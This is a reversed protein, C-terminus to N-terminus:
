AAGNRMAYLAIAAATAVNLSDWGPAMAIAAPKLRGLLSAPLGQGEAGVVLATRPHRPTEKLTHAAGPSLAIAAIDHDALGSLLADENESRTFPVSLVAGVSVRLAKRYLPDCSGKDLVVLDVGFAAANRFLAGLNDHNAIGLAILLLANSPLASLAQHLLAPTARHGLALIGRHLPFGAIRSLIESPAVYLPLNLSHDTLLAQFKEAHQPAVLLSHTSFHPSGLLRRVVVEGEAVFLGDGRHLDRERLFRYPAIRPDDPDAIDLM